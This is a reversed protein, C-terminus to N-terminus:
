YGNQEIIRYMNCGRESGLQCGKKAFLKAQRYDVPVATGEIHYFALNTCGNADNLSCGKAYLEAATFYNKEVGNGREYLLGLNTFSAADNLNM